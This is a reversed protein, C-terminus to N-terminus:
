SLHNSWLLDCGCYQCCIQLDVCVYRTQIEVERKWMSQDQLTSKDLIKLAVKGMAPTHHLLVSGFKGSGLLSESLTARTFDKLTWRSVQSSLSSAGESKEHAFPGVSYTYSLSDVDSDPFTLREMNEKSNGEQEGNWPTVCRIVQRKRPTKRAQKRDRGGSVSSPCPSHFTNNELDARSNQHLADYLAPLVM